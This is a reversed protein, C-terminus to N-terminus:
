WTEQSAVTLGVRLDIYATESVEVSKAVSISWIGKFIRGGFMCYTLLVSHEFHSVHLSELDESQSFLLM